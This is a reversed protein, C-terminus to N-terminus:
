FGKPPPRNKINKVLLIELAQKMFPEFNDQQEATLLNKVDNFHQYTTEIKDKEILVLATNLSDKLSENQESNLLNEFKSQLLQLQKKNLMEMEKNHIEALEKFSAQQSADLKLIEVAKPMFNAKVNNIPPRPPMHKKPLMMFTICVGNIIVM